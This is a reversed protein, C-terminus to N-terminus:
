LDMLAISLICMGVTNRVESAIEHQDPLYLSHVLFTVTTKENLVRKAQIQILHSPNVCSQFIKVYAIVLSSLSM